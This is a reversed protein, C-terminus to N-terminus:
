ITREHVFTRGSQDCASGGADSALEGPEQGGFTVVHHQNGTGPERHLLQGLVHLLAEAYFCHDDGLIQFMARRGQLDYLVESLAVVVAHVHRDVQDPGGM